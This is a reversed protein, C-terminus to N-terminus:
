VVSKRDTVEEHVAELDSVPSDPERALRSPCLDAGVEANNSPMLRVCCVM